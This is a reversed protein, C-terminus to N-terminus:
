ALFFYRPRALAFALEADRLLSGAVGYRRFVLPDLCGLLQCHQGKDHQLCSLQGPLFFFQSSASEDTVTRTGKELAIGALCCFIIILVTM